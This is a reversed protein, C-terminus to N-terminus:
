SRGGGAALREVSRRASTVAGAADQLAVNADSANMSAAKLQREVARAGWCVEQLTVVVSRLQSAIILLFIALVVVLAIVEATSLIILVTKSM